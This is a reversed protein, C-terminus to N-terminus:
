DRLYPNAGREAAITSPAGHGPLVQTAPALGALRALSRRMAAPDGGPLDTRGVTGAFLVDGTFAAGPAAGEETATDRAAGPLLYVTSGETHGPSHLSRLGLGDTLPVPADAGFTRVDRPERYPDGLTGALPALQAGLTGLTGFPDALRYADAEHLVLPVGWASSLAAASWTHDVHGHTALLAVPALAHDHVLALLDGVVGAGPDVVVTAGDDASVVYCNTGLFPSVVTRVNV